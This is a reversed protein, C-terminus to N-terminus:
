INEWWNLFRFSQHIYQVAEQSLLTDDIFLSWMNGRRVFDLGYGGIAKGPKIEKVDIAEIGDVTSTSAIYWGKGDPGYVLDFWEHANKASTEQIWVTIYKRQSNKDYFNVATAGPFTGDHNPPHPAEYPYALDSPYHVTFGLKKNTYERWEHGFRGLLIDDGNVQFPTINFLVFWQTECQTVVVGFPVRELGVGDSICMPTQTHTFIEDGYMERVKQDADDTDYPFFACTLIIGILAIGLIIKTRNKM